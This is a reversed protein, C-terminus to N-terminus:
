SIPQNIDLSNIAEPTSKFKEGTKSRSAFVELIIESLAKESSLDLIVDSVSRSSFTSLLDESSPTFYYSFIIM